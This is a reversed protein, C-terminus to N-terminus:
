LCDETLVVLWVAVPCAVMTHFIAKCVVGLIVIRACGKSDGVPLAANGVEQCMFAVFLCCIPHHGTDHEVDFHHAGALAM